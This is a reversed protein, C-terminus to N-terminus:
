KRGGPAPPPPEGSYVARAIREMNLEILHRPGVLIARTGRSVGALLQFSDDAEVIPWGENAAYASVVRDRLRLRILGDQSQETMARRFYAPIRRADVPIDDHSISGNRPDVVSHHRRGDESWDISLLPGPGSALREFVAKPPLRVTWSGRPKDDRELSYLTGDAVYAPPSGATWQLLRPVDSKGQFPPAHMDVVRGAADWWMVAAATPVLTFSARENAGSVPAGTIVEDTFRGDVLRREGPRAAGAAPLVRLSSGDRTYRWFGTRAALVPCGQTRRAAGGPSLRAFQGDTGQLCLEPEDPDRNGHLRAVDLPPVSAQDPRSLRELSGSDVPLTFWGRTSTAVHVLGQFVAASNIADFDFRGNVIAIPEGRWTGAVRGASSGVRGATRWEWYRADADFRREAFPDRDLLVPPSAGDIAVRYPRAGDYRMEAASGGVRLDTATRGAEAPPGAVLRFTDPDFSWNGDRSVLGAPTAAWLTQRDVALDQWVDLAYRNASADWALPRWLGPPMRMEFVPATHPRGQRLALPESAPSRRVLRLRKRQILPPYEAYDAITAVEARDSVITWGQNQNQYRWTRFTGEIAYLGPALDREGPPTTLMPVPGTVSVLRVPQVFAHTRAGTLALGAPHVSVFRNRWVTFTNTGFSVVQSIDDHPFQGDALTVAGDVGSLAPGEVASVVYRGSLGSADAWWSWVPSRVRARCSLANAPAGVFASREQTACGRPGCFVVAGPTDCPEGVRDIAPSLTSAGALAILRARDLAVDTGDYVQLGADTGVYVANGVSAMSRVVDFPFRGSSLDIPIWSLRGQLDAVRLAGEITAGARTLRLPGSEALTRRELPNAQAPDPEFARREVSWVFASGSRTIWLKERGDITASELADAQPAPFRAGAIEIFGHTLLALGTGYAAADVFRDTALEARDAGAVFPIRDGAASEVVLSGNRRSWVLGTDDALVADTSLPPAPEWVGAAARRYWRNGRLMRPVLDPGSTLRDAPSSAGPPGPDFSSLGALSGPAHIGADTLLLPGEPGIAIGRRGRDWTFARNRYAAVSRGDGLRLTALSGDSVNRFFTVAGITFTPSQPVAPRSGSSRSLVITAQRGPEKAVTGLFAESAATVFVSIGGPGADLDISVEETRRAPSPYALAIEFWSHRDLDYQWLSRRTAVWLVSPAEDAFHWVRSIAADVPGQSEGVIVPRTTTVDVRDVGGDRKVVYARAGREDIAVARATFVDPARDVRAPGTSCTDPLTVASRLVQLTGHSGAEDWVLVTSGIAALTGRGTDPLLGAVGYWSHRDRSHLRLGEDTTVAVLGDSLRRADRLGGEDVGAGPTRFLCSPAPANAAPQPALSALPRTELYRRGRDERALWVNSGSTFMRHVGRAIERSGARATGGAVSLPEAAIVGALRAPEAADVRWTAAVRRARPDYRQITGPWSLYIEAGAQLVDDPARRPMEEGGGILVLPRSGVSVLRNADSRALWAGRREAIEVLREGDPAPLPDSWARTRMSYIRVGGATSAALMDGTAAVDLLRTGAMASSRGGTLPTVGSAAISQVRGTGDIVRLVDPSSADVGRIPGDIPFPKSTNFFLTGLEVQQQTAVHADYSAAGAPPTRGPVGRPELGFLFGGSSAVILAPSRLWAPVAPMPAYTRRVIDHLLAGPQGFFLVKDGFTVADRYRDIPVPSSTAPNILTSVAGPALAYARGAATLVAARGPVDAAIRTPQEGALAWRWPADGALTRQTFLAVGSSRGGYGYYFCSASACPGVASITEAAQRKWSRLRTDYDFIGAGGALLLHDKWQVVHLMTDLSLEPYRNREDILVAPPAVPDTLRSLRACAPPGNDCPVTVHAFLGESSTAELALVAGDLGKVPRFALPRAAGLATSPRTVALESVGDPGGVYFRDRWWVAHTVASPMGDPSIEDRSLWRRRQLDQLGVGDAGAAALLWKGDASAAVASLDAQQIPTGRRGVFKTDGVIVEWRGNLRRVLGGGATVGWLADSRGGTSSALLRVDPRVLDGPGFPRTTSWLGTDPDYSHLVGGQQSVILQRDPAHFLADLFPATDLSRRVNELLRPDPLARASWRATDSSGFVLLVLAAIAACYVLSAAAVGGILVPDVRRRLPLPRHRIRHELRGRVDRGDERQACRRVPRRSGGDVPERPSATRRAFDWGAVDHLGDILIREHSAAEDLVAGGSARLAFASAAIEAALRYHDREPSEATLARAIRSGDRGAVGLYRVFTLAEFAQLHATALHVDEIRSAAHLGISAVLRGQVEIVADPAKAALIPTSEDHSGHEALAWLADLRELVSRMLEVKGSRAEAKARHAEASVDASEVLRQLDRRLGRSLEDGEADEVEDLRDILRRGTAGLAAFLAGAGSAGARRDIWM